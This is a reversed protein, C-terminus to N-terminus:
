RSFRREVRWPERALGTGASRVLVAGLAVAIPLTALSSLAPSLRDELLLWALVLVGSAAVMLVLGGLTSLVATARPGRARMRDQPAAVSLVAGIGVCVLAVQIGGLFAVGADAWLGNLAAEALVAAGAFPVVVGLTAMVKGRVVAAMPAGAGLLYSFGQEDYGLLNSALAFSTMAVLTVIGITLGVESTGSQLVVVGMVPLTIASQLARPQRFFYYRLHQAAVATTPSAPLLALPRPILSLGHGASQPGERRSIDGGSHGRVRRTITGVWLLLALLVALVAVAGHESAASWRGDRSSVVVRGVAGPPLWSLVRVVPSAELDILLSPRGRLLGALLYAGLALAGAAVVIAERAVRSGLVGAMAATLARSAVVCLVTFGAASAGVALRTVTAEGRASAGGAVLMLTFLATPSVLAGLMLGVVQEGPRVPFQELREPDVSEDSLGPMVLPALAWVLFVLTLLVVVASDGTGDRADVLARFGAGAVLGLACALVWGLVHLVYQIGGTRGLARRRLRLKLRLLVLAM